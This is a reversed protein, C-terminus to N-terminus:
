SNEQGNKKESSYTIKYKKKCISKHRIASHISSVKYGVFKSAKKLSGRFLLKGTDKCLVDVSTPQLPGDLFVKRGLSNAM